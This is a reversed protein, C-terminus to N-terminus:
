RFWKQWLREIRSVFWAVSGPSEPAKVRSLTTGNTRGAADYFVYWRWDDNGWIAYTTPPPTFRYMDMYDEIPLGKRHCIPPGLIAAVEGHTMGEHVLDFGALHMGHSRTRPWLVFAGVAVVLVSLGALVGLLKRRRM